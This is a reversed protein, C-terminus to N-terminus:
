TLRCRQSVTCELNPLAITTGLVSGTRKTDTVIYVALNTPPVYRFTAHLNNVKEAWNGLLYVVPQCRPPFTLKVQQVIWTTIGGPM